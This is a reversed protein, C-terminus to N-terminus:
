YYTTQLESKLLLYNHTEMVCVIFYDESTLVLKKGRREGKLSCVYLLLINANIMEKRNEKRPNWLWHSSLWCLLLCENMLTHLWGRLRSTFIHMHFFGSSTYLICIHCNRRRMGFVQLIWCLNMKINQLYCLSFIQNSLWFYCKSVSWKSCSWVAMIYHWVNSQSLWSHAWILISWKCRLAM